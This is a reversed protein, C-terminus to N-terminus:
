LLFTGLPFINDENYTLPVGEIEAPIEGLEELLKRAGEINIVLYRPPQGHISMCWAVTKILQKKPSLQQLKWLIDDSTKCKRKYEEYTPINYKECLEEGPGKVDIMLEM